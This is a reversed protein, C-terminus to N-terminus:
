FARRQTNYGRGEGNVSGNEEEVMEKARQVQGHAPLLDAADIIRAPDLAIFIAVALLMLFGDLSVFARERRLLPGTWGEALGAARFVDRALHCALAVFLAAFVPRYSRPIVGMRGARVRFDVVLGTFLATSALQIVVGALAINTGAAPSVGRHGSSARGAIAGGIVQIIMSLVDCAVFVYLYLRAPLRSSEKGLVHILQGLQVYLAATFFVPAIVLTVIQM